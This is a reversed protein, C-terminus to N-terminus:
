SVRFLDVPLQRSLRRSVLAESTFEAESHEESHANTKSARPQIKSQDCPPASAPGPADRAADFRVSRRPKHPSADHRM